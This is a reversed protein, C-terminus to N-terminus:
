LEPPQRRFQDGPRTGEASEPPNDMYMHIGSEPAVWVGHSLFGMVGDQAETMM